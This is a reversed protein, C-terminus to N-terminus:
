RLFSLVQLDLIRNVELKSCKKKEERHLLKYDTTASSSSDNSTAKVLKRTMDM